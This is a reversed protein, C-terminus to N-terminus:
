RSKYVYEDVPRIPSLVAPPTNNIKWPNSPAPPSLWPPLEPLDDDSEDAWTCEEPKTPITVPPPRLRRIADVESKWKRLM